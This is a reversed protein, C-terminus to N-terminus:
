EKSFEDEIFSTKILKKFVSDNCILDFEGVYEYVNPKFNLKFENLGHYESSEDFNGSLGNLDCYRFYPKYREFISHYLFHNPSFSRFEDGFGNAVVYIRSLHKIVLAGAVISVPHKKLGQTASVIKDKYAQLKKDSDMKKNLYKQRPDRQILNNWEDNRTQEKEFQEKVYNLYKSYDLQIFVLDISNDRSFVNYLNRFYTIPKKTKYKIFNYLIDIEKATGLTLSMGINQANKIKKRYNRNLNNVNYEKLNIYANFKPLMLDFEKLEVRRKINQTKLDDIIRVNGNYTVVYDKSADTEGIIIEPNFKIFIYGKDKYHKRLLELFEHLIRQDYYNVLFGKPAYGYKTVSKIKKTLILTAAVIKNNEDIMGMYDYNYDFASMVIAYKSTQCYSSLPHFKAYEDFQQYTLEVIKM